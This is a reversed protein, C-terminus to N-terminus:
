KTYFDVCITYAGADDSAKGTCQSLQVTGAGDPALRQSLWNSYLLSAVEAAGETTTM